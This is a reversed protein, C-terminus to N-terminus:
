AGRHAEEVAHALASAFRGRLEELAGGARCGAANRHGGGDFRRAISQVDVDGRSRLSIKWVDEEVERLLAVAEVGAISRPTDVLGESDGAAAGARAFMARTLHVTAVRGEHHLVLTRLLEGLLRVSGESQSEHIWTSALEPSAGDRVLAAAAEFAAPTANSFRFGGTDSALAVLLCSAALPDIAWGLRRAVQAILVAVAPAAVDVWAAVGYSSNGLHHDINVLPLASLRAELGTRDLTPCELVVALDFADPFGPPPTPGVHISDAGPLARYVPPTAHHNWIAVDRGADRLIRALGLETGIADGDPSEHSTLLIRRANELLPLVAEITM